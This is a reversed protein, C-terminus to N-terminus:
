KDGKPYNIKWWNLAMTIGGMLAAVAAAATVKGLGDGLSVAQFAGTIGVVVAAVVYMGKKLGKTIKYKKKGMDKMMREM